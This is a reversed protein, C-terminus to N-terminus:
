FSLSSLISFAETLTITQRASKSEFYKESDELSSTYVLEPETRGTAEYKVEM